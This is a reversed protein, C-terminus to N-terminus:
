SCFANVIGDMTQLLKNPRVFGSDCNLTIAYDFFDILYPKINQLVDAAIVDPTNSEPDTIIESGRFAEEIANKINKRIPECPIPNQILRQGVNKLFAERLPKWLVKLHVCLSLQATDFIKQAREYLGKINDDSYNFNFGLRTPCTNSSNTSLFKRVKFSPAVSKLPLAHNRVATKYADKVWTPYQPKSGKWFGSSKSQNQQQLNLCILVIIIFILIIHITLHNSM